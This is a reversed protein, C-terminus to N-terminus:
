VEGYRALLRELVQVVEDYVACRLEKDNLDQSAAGFACYICRRTVNHLDLGGEELAQEQWKQATNFNTYENECGNPGLFQQRFPRSEITRNFWLELILIGLSLLCSRSSNQSVSPSRPISARTSKESSFSHVLLPHNAQVEGQHNEFFYIDNKGWAEELWPGTHLKLLSKAMTLGVVLRTQRPIRANSPEHETLLTNLTVVRRIQSTPLVGDPTIHITHCRNDEDRLFGLYPQAKNHQKLAACLDIIEMADKPIMSEVSSRRDIEDQFSVKRGCGDLRKSSTSFVGSTNDSTPQLLAKEQFKNAMMQIEAAYWSDDPGVLTRSSSWTHSALPFYLSLKVSEPSTHATSQNSFREEDNSLLLKTSHPSDCDCLLTKTIAAHLSSAQIRFHEFIKPLTRQRKRRMPELRDSNGLLRQMEDNYKELQGMLRLRSKKRLTYGLRRFEFELRGFGTNTIQSWHSKDEYDAFLMLCRQTDHIGSVQDTTIKLKSRLRQLVEHISSVVVMYCEYEHKGSMRMKLRAELTPDKWGQDEPDDLMRAMEYESEVVTSLLDEINQLFFIKQRCLANMFVFFEARFRVWEKMSQLGKEYHELGSIVLPFAALILGALELGTLM